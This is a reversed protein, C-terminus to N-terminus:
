ESGQTWKINEKHLSLLTGNLEAGLILAKASFNLWVLLVIITGISGYLASYHAVHDVYYAYAWSLALWSVLAAATGPWLQKWTRHRDQAM